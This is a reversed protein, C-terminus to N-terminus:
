FMGSGYSIGGECDEYDDELRRKAGRQVQRAKKVLTKIINDAHRLRHQDLFFMARVTRSGVCMGLKQLVQCKTINGLNFTAVADYVGFHLTNIGVFVTKPLRHWIVSNLCENPNQTKGHLCKMLLSRDALDRFIPKIEAMIASPLSHHHIYKEGTTLGRNYKCWSNEGKPCLGHQPHEDTSATHFYLAWIARRMEELNGTNQRIALGYCNQIHDIISDTLRGKGDLTKGDDLKKGKMVSKLRRLRAGMRKQVHGICELKSINVSNGYPKSELVEKFAKSDGDGLYKVYRVNYWQSSRHFIKKVGAVEMGGSSGYYNAICDDSHENKLRGTCRCYKSMIAVDIVKGTDVSTATVVGNNSTHGRKQWTGDFAVTLDRSGDNEEVAEEVAVQMSKQAVDEVASGLVYNYAEFKSPASPLNLVGCLMDGAAKGKGIARLGYVLRINVSYLETKKYGNNVTVSVSSPFKCSYKCVSCILNFQAALGVHSEVKLSVNGHCKKCCLSNELAECLINTDILEFVENGRDLLNYKEELDRLKKHSASNENPTLENPLDTTLPNVNELLSSSSSSQKALSDNNRKKQWNVRKKFVKAKARPM